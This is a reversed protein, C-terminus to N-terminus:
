ASLEETVAQRVDRVWAPVDLPDHWRTAQHEAESAIALVREVASTLRAVDQRARAIFVADPHRIGTIDARYVRPDERSTAEPAVEYVALKRAPEALWDTYFVLLTETAPEGYQDTMRRTVEADIQASDAADYRDDYTEAPLQDVEPGPLYEADGVWRRADAYSIEYPVTALVDSGRHPRGSKGTVLGTSTLRPDGNDTNGLWRWPGPTAAREARRIEEALEEATASTMTTTTM